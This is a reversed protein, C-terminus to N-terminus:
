QSARRPLRHRLVIHHEYAPCVLREVLPRLLWPDGPRERRVADRPPTGCTDSRARPPRTDPDPRRSRTCGSVTRATRFCACRAPPVAAQPRDPGPQREAARTGLAPASAITARTMSSQVIRSSMSASRRMKEVRSSASSAMPGRSYPQSRTIDAVAPSRRQCRAPACQGSGDAVVAWALGRGVPGARHRPM